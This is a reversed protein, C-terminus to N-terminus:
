AHWWLIVSYHNTVFSRLVIHRGNKSKTKISKTSDDIDVYNPAFGHCIPHMIMKSTVNDCLLERRSNISNYIQYSKFEEYCVGSISFFNSHPVM